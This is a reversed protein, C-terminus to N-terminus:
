PFLEVSGAEGLVTGNGTLYTLGRDSLLVFVLPNTPDGDITWGEVFDQVKGSFEILTGEGSPWAAEMSAFYNMNQALFFEQGERQMSIRMGQEEQSVSYFGRVNLRNEANPDPGGRLLICGSIGVLRTDPDGPYTRELEAACLGEGTDLTGSITESGTPLTTAPGPVASYSNISLAGTDSAILADALISLARLRVGDSMPTDLSGDLHLGLLQDANLTADRDALEDALGDSLAQSVDIRASAIGAQESDPFRDVFAEYAAISREQEAKEWATEPSECGSLAMLGILIVAPGAVPRIAAPAAYCAAGFITRSM